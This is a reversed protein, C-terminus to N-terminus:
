SNCEIYRENIEEKGINVARKRLMGLICCTGATALLHKLTHGSIIHLLQFIQVDLLETTKSIFYLLMAAIIYRLYNVPKDYLLLILPILIMPLFQVLGYMRLDGRGHVESWEWYFVSGVGAVLLPLILVLSTRPSVTESVVSCLFGMFAITMPLRDWFLTDNSPYYHYYSSGFGTLFVGMFFILYHLTSADFSHKKLISATLIMGWFGVIVFPANSLVDFANPIGWIQKNDAFRHYDPDQPIPGVFIFTGTIVTLATSVILLTKINTQMPHTQAISDAATDVSYIWDSGATPKLV